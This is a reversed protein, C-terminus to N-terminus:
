FKKVMEIAFDEYKNKKYLNYAPENKLWVTLYGYEMGKKKAIKETEKLLKKAIGKRQYKKLVGIDDIWITKPPNDSWGWTGLKSFIWGAIENNFRGCSIRM